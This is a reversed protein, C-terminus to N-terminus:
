GNGSLTTHPLKELDTKCKLKQKEVVTVFGCVFVPEDYSTM